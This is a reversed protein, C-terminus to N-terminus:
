APRQEAATLAPLRLGLYIAAAVPLIFPVVFLVVELLSPGTPGVPESGVATPGSM